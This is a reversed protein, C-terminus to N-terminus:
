KVLGLEGMITKLEELEATLQARTEGSKLFDGELSDRELMQKWEGDQVV